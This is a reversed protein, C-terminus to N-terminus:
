NDSPLPPAPNKHYTMIAHETNIASATADVIATIHNEFDSDLFLLTARHTSSSTRDPPAMTITM